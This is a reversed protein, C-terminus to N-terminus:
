VIDGMYWWAPVNFCPCTKHEDFENHGCVDADPYERKLRNVLIWLSHMQEKTYNMEDTNSDEAKGGVLCVGVSDWNHGKVHAGSVSQTRGTEISGNRRIVFHYGIDSWGRDLHWQRIEDAGIDMSPPTYACHIIIHNTAKRENM